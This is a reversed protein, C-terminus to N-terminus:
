AASAALAEPAIKAHTPLFLTAITGRGEESDLEFRGGHM